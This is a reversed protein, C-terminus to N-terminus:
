DKKLKSREGFLQVAVELNSQEEPLSASFWEHQLAQEASLRWTPDNTLLKM